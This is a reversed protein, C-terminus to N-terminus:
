TEIEVLPSIATEIENILSLETEATELTVILSYRMMNEYCKLKKRNKWWGSVPYVVIKNCSALEAATTNIYDKHISGRTRKKIGIGWRQTNNRVVNRKDEENVQQSIRNRLQEESEDINNLDFRLGASAYNYASYNDYRGPAPDIFYSLTVSLKVDLEGMNLLTERPWPLNYIHMENFIPGDAGEKFPQIHNQAIFTVGQDVSWRMMQLNPVGYGFVRIRDEVDQFRNEMEDTWQASQVLLGRITEPWYEPHEAAVIAALRAALATAPSTGSYSDFLGRAEYNGNTSIIELDSHPSLQFRPDPDTNKYLNGGEMVIDPKLPSGKRGKWLLSTTAFPSLDNRNALVEHLQGNDGLCEVKKTYAGVTLVNWAQAPSYISSVLNSDPYNLWDQWNDVNGGSIVFLRQGNEEAAMRDMVSSWSTSNGHISPENATVASCYILRKDYKQIEIKAVAQQAYEAWEIDEEGMNPSRLKVSCLRYNCGKDNYGAIYDAIDGFITTGALLTGHNGRDDIDWADVAALCDDQRIIRQLLPHEYNVGSDMICLYSGTENPYSFDQEIMDAWESQQQDNENVIFGALIPCPAFGIVDGSVAMIKFMDDRNARITMVIQEPFALVNDKFEIGIRELIARQHNVIQNDCHLKNENFFWVELWVKQEFPIANNSDGMWLDELQANTIYEITEILNQNKPKHKSTEQHAYEDAKSSLWEQKNGKLYLTTEIRKNQSEGSERVNILHGIQRSDINKLALDCGEQNLIKLYYGDRPNEINAADRSQHDAEKAELFMQAVQRAHMLRERNPLRSGSIYPNKSVYDISQKYDSIDFHERAM